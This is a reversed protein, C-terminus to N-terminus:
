SARGLLPVVTTFAPSGQDLENVLSLPAGGPAVV